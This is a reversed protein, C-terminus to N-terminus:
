CPLRPSPGSALTPKLGAPCPWMQVTASRCPLFPLSLCARRDFCTISCIERTCRRHAQLKRLQFCVGDMCRTRHVHYMYSAQHARRYCTLIMGRALGLMCRSASLPSLMGCCPCGPQASTQRPAGLIAWRRGQNGSTNLPKVHVLVETLVHVHKARKLACKLCSSAGLTTCRDCLLV